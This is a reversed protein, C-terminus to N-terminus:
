QKMSLSDIEVLYFNPIIETLYTKLVKIDTQNKAVYICKLTTNGDTDPKLNLIDENKPVHKVLVLRTSRIPLTYNVYSRSKFNIIGQALIDCERDLLMEVGKQADNEIKIVLELGKSKAFSELMELQFGMPQGQYIFYDIPNTALVVRLEKSEIIEEYDRNSEEIGFGFKFYHM